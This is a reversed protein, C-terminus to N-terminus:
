IPLDINEKLTLGRIIRGSHIRDRKFGKDELIQSFKKKSLKERGTEECWREYASYLEKIQIFANEDIKCEDDIFRGVIDMEQKYDETAIKVKMPPNLGQEVYKKYGEVMWKFIGDLEPQLFLEYYNKIQNEPPIVVEFPILLIRRWIAYDTGRIIPKKNTVLFIKGTPKYEFHESYLFRAVIKEGSTFQKVLAEALKKDEEIESVTIFRAGTLRALDNRISNYGDTLFTEAPTVMAYKGLIDQFARIFTSKGNAGVGYLIFIVNEKTDGTLIYGAMRQVFEVLEDDILIQKLFTLWNPCESNPDYKVNAIRMCYFVQSHPRLEFKRLDFVGNQLNILYDDADFHNISKVLLKNGKMLNVIRRIKDYSQIKFLWKVEESLKNKQEEDKTLDILSKFFEHEYRIHDAVLNEVEPETIKRWRKGDWKVFKKLEPIYKLDRYFSMSYSTSYGADSKEIKIEEEMTDDGFCSKIIENVEEESMYNKLKEKVNIKFLEDQITPLEEYQQCIDKVYELIVNKLEDNANQFLRTEKLIGEVTIPDYQYESALKLVAIKLAEELSTYEESIRGHLLDYLEESMM